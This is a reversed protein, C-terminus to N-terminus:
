SGGNSSGDLFSVLAATLKDPANEAMHNGAHVTAPDHEARRFDDFNATGLREPTARGGVGYWSDPDANIVREPTEPPAVTADCRALAEGIPVTGLVALASV